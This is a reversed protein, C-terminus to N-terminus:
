APMFIPWFGETRATKRAVEPNRDALLGILILVAILLGLLLLNWKAQM